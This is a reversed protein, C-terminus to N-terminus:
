FGEFFCQSSDVYNVAKFQLSDGPRSISALLYIPWKSGVNFM